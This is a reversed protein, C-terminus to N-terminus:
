QEQVVQVYNKLKSTLYTRINVTTPNDIATFEFVHAKRKIAKNIHDIDNSTASLISCPSFGNVVYDPRYSLFGPSTQNYQPQLRSLIPEYVTSRRQGLNWFKSDININSNDVWGDVISMLKNKYTELTSAYTGPGFNSKLEKLLNNCAQEESQNGSLLSKVFPEGIAVVRLIWESELLGAERADLSGIAWNGEFSTVSLWKHNVESRWINGLADISPQQINKTFVILSLICTKAQRGPRNTSSRIANDVAAFSGPFTEAGSLADYVAIKEGPGARDLCYWYSINNLRNTNVRIVAEKESAGPLPLNTRALLGRHQQEMASELSDSFTSSNTLVIFLCGRLSTRAQGVFRQAATKVTQEQEHRDLFEADSLDMLSQIFHGREANDIIVIWRRDQQGGIQAVLTKLWDKNEAINNGSM